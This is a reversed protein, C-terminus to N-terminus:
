ENAMFSMHSTMLSIKENNLQNKNKCMPGLFQPVM